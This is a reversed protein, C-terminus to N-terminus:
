SMDHFGALMRSGIAEVISTILQNNTDFYLQLPQWPRTPAFPRWRDDKLASWEAKGNPDDIRFSRYALGLDDMVDADRREYFGASALFMLSGMRGDYYKNLIQQLSAPHGEPVLLGFYVAVATGDAANVTIEYQPLHSATNDTAIFYLSFVGSSPAFVAIRATGGPWAASAEDVVRGIQALWAPNTALAEGLGAKASAIHAKNAFNVTRKFSRSSSGTSGELEEIIAEDTLLSNRAFMGRRLVREVTWGEDVLLTQGFKAAYGIELHDRYPSPELDYVNEHLTCLEAEAGMDETFARVEELLETDRAITALCFERTLIQPAFYLVYEFRELQPIPVSAGDGFLTSLQQIAVNIGINAKANFDEAAKLIVLVYDEIGKTKCCEDYSTIGCELNPEDHYMNLEHWPALYRGQNVAVPEIAYAKLSKREADPVLQVGNVAISTENRLRSFPILLEKWEVAAVIARIEDNRAGFHRQIAEVYKFVEHAAERAAADTKKVEIIVWHGAKDKALIDLFNRTGLKSPIFQEIKLLELGDELVSLDSALLDRIKAENM